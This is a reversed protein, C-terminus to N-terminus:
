LGIRYAERAQKAEDRTKFPGLADYEGEQEIKAYYGLKQKKIGWFIVNNQVPMKLNKWRNDNNKGNIHIINNTPWEGTMYFWIIKHAQFSGFKALSIRTYGMSDTSQYRMGNLKKTVIGTIPDYDILEKLEDLTPPTKM